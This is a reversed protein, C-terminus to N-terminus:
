LLRYIYKGNAITGFSICINYLASGVVSKKSYM